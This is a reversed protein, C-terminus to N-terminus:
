GGVGWKCPIEGVLCVCVFGRACSKVGGRAYTKEWCVCVCVSVGQVPNRGGCVCVCVAPGPARPARSPAANIAAAREAREAARTEGLGGRRQSRLQQLGTCQTLRSRNHGGSSGPELMRTWILREAQAVCVKCVCPPSAAPLM